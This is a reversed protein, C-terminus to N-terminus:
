RERRSSAIVRAERVVAGFWPPTPREEEVLQALALGLAEALASM